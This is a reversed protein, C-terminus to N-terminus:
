IPMIHISPMIREIWDNWQFNFTFHSHNNKKEGKREHWQAYMLNKHIKMIKRTEDDQDRIMHFSVLASHHHSMLLFFFFFLLAAWWNRIFWICLYIFADLVRKSDGRMKVSLVKLTQLFLFFLITLWRM